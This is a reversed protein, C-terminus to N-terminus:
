LETEQILDVIEDVDDADYCVGVVGGGRRVLGLFRAQEDTVTGGPNKFEIAILRGDRLQGIVDPLRCSKDEGSVEPRYLRYNKLVGGGRVRRSGGNIRALWLCHPLLQKIGATLIEQEKQAGM